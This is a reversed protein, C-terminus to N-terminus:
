AQETTEIELSYPKTAWALADPSAKYEYLTPSTSQKASSGGVGFFHQSQHPKKVESQTLWGLAMAAKLVKEARYVNDVLGPQEGRPSGMAYVLDYGHLFGRFSGNRIWEHFCIGRHCRLAFILDKPM